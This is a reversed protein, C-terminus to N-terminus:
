KINCPSIRCAICVDFFTMHRSLCCACARYGTSLNLASCHQYGAAGGISHLKPYWDWVMVRVRVLGIVSRVRVRAMFTVIIYATCFLV